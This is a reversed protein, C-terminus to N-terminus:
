LKANLGGGSNDPCTESTRADAVIPRDKVVVDFNKQVQGKILGSIGGRRNLRRQIDLTNANNGMSDTSIRRMQQTLNAIAKGM